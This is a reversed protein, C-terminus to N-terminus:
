QAIKCIKYAQASGALQVFYLGAPLEDTAVTVETGTIRQMRLVRGNLDSIHLTAAEAKPRRLTFQSSFPNPFLEFPAAVAEDPRAAGLCLGTLPLPNGEIRDGPTLDQGALGSYSPLYRYARFTANSTFMLSDGQNLPGAAVVPNVYDWVTNGAADIEFIHGPYGECVLTHNDPLRQMGSIVQSYFNPNDVYTWVPASPGFAQAPAILYNGTSDMPPEFIELTSYAGAPRGNGNNFIQLKGAYQDGAPVWEINHQGFFKQDAVTGRNYTQPNGYRYLLDGGKGRTGGTSGAAELTTTSHDILWIEDLRHSSIAIQDLDANYAIGNCHLWNVESTPDYYNLNVREPHDAVVGFNAKTSDFEQVLHDWVHWEWVVNGNGPTTPQVEVIQDPWLRLGTTAPNRGAAVAVTSDKSEWAIMLVNGNPLMLADHHQAETANSLTYHWTVNGAWDLLEIRGGIGPAPFNPNAVAGTHLLRGDPLLRTVVGVTYGSAWENVKRGCNDILYTKTSGLSAFLTYGETATPDNQFLGVTQQGQM